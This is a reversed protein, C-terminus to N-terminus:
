WTPGSGPMKAVGRPRGNADTFYNFQLHVPPAFSTLPKTVTTASTMDFIGLLIPCSPPTM